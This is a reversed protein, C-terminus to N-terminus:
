NKQMTTTIKPQSLLEPYKDKTYEILLELYEDNDYGGFTKIFKLWLDANTGKKEVETLMSPTFYNTNNNIIIKYNEELIIASTHMNKSFAWLMAERTLYKFARYAIKKSSSASQLSITPNDYFLAQVEYGAERYLRALKSRTGMNESDLFFSKRLMKFSRAYAEDNTSSILLEEARLALHTAEATFDYMEEAFLVKRNQPWGNAVLNQAVRLLKYYNLMGAGNLESVMNISTKIATKQLIYAAESRTMKGLISHLDALAGTVQPAAGSTGGFKGLNGNEGYSYIFYDSGALITVHKDAQSFNSVFGSPDASGVVIMDQGHEAIFLNVSEPFDNGTIQVLITRNLTKPLTEAIELSGHEKFTMSHNIIDPLSPHKSLRKFLGDHIDRKTNDDIHTIVARSSTGVPYEGTILNAVETGHPYHYSRTIDSDEKLSKLVEPNLKAKRTGEVDFGVDAIGVSSPQFRFGQNEMEKIFERGEPLGSAEQAWFMTISSTEKTVNDEYIIPPYHQNWLNPLHSSIMSYKEIDSKAIRAAHQLTSHFAKEPVVKAPSSESTQYCHYLLLLIITNRM